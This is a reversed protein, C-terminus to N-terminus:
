ELGLGMATHRVERAWYVSIAIKTSAGRGYGKERREADSGLQLALSAAKAWLKPAGPVAALAARCDKFADATLELGERAACRMGYLGAVTKPDAGAATTALFSEDDGTTICTGGDRSSRQRPDQLIKNHGPLWNDDDEGGGPPPSSVIVAEGQPEPLSKGWELDTTKHDADADTVLVTVPMVPPIGNQPSKPSRHEAASKLPDDEDDGVIHLPTSLRSPSSPPRPPSPPTGDFTTIGLGESNKSGIGAAEPFSGATNPDASPRPTVPRVGVRAAALAVTLSADARKFLETSQESQKSQPRHHQDGTDDGHDGVGEFDVAGISTADIRANPIASRQNEKTASGPAAFKLSREFRLLTAALAQHTGMLSALSDADWPLLLEAAKASNAAAIKEAKTKAAAQLNRGGSSSSNALSSASRQRSPSPPLLGGGSATVSSSQKGTRKTAKAAANEKTSKKRAKAAVAAVCAARLSAISSKTGSTSVGSGSIEMGIVSPGGPPSKRPLCLYAIAKELLPVITDEPDEGALEAM